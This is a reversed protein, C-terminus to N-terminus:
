NKLCLPTVEGILNVLDKAYLPKKLGRIKGGKHMKVFNEVDSTAEFIDTIIIVNKTEIRELSKLLSMTNNLGENRCLSKFTSMEKKTENFVDISMKQNLSCKSDILRAFSERKCMSSDSFDVQKMSSSVDIWIELNVKKHITKKEKGCFIDFRNGKECDIVNRDLSTASKMQKLNNKQTAESHSVEKIEDNESPEYLGIQPDFCKDGVKECAYALSRSYTTKQNLVSKLNENKDISLFWIEFKQPM